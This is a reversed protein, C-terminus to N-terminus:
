ASSPMRSLTADRPSPSTYLLCATVPGLLQTTKSFLKQFFKTDDIDSYIPYDATEVMSRFGVSVRDIDAPTIGTTEFLSALSLDPFGFHLKKRSYREENAAFVPEGDILLCVGADKGDHIGLVNM